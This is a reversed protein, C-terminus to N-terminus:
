CFSKKEHIILYKVLIKNGVEFNSYGSVEIKNKQLMQEFSSFLRISKIISRDSKFKIKRKHLNRIDDNYFEM